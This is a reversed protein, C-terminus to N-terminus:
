VKFYPIAVSDMRQTVEKLGMKVATTLFQRMSEEM